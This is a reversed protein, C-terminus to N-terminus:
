AIWSMHVHCAGAEVYLGLRFSPACHAPFVLYRPTSGPPIHLRFLLVASANLGDYFNLTQGASEDHSALIALIRGPTSALLKAGSFTGERDTHVTSM